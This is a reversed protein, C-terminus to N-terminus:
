RSGGWASQILAMPRDHTHQRAIERVTMFCVASFSLLFASGDAAAESPTVWKNCPKPLAPPPTSPRGGSVYGARPQPPGHSNTKLWCTGGATNGGATAPEYTFFSCGQAAWKAGFCLACCDAADKGPTNGISPGHGRGFATDNLFGSASCSGPPPPPTPPTPAPVPAAADCNADDTTLDWQASANLARNTMFFRFNPYNALTAAEATYNLAQHLTFLMNSQGSCFYVDGAQVETATVQPGTAGAVTITMNKTNKWLDSADLTVKWHGSDVESTVLYEGADGHISVMEGAPETIGALYAMPGREESTQLVMGDGFWQPLRVTAMTLQLLVSAILCRSLAAHFM